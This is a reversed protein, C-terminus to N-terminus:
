HVQCAGSIGSSSPLEVKKIIQLSVAWLTLGESLALGPHPGPPLSRPREESHSSATCAVSFTSIQVSWGPCAATGRGIFLFPPSQTASFSLSWNFFLVPCLFVFLFASLAFILSPCWFYCLFHTLPLPRFSFTVDLSSCCLMLHCSQQACFPLRLSLSSNM